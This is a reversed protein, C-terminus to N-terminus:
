GHIVGLYTLYGAEMGPWHPAGLLAAAGNLNVSYRMSDAEGAANCTTEIYQDASFGDHLDPTWLPWLGGTLSNVHATRTAGFGASNVLYVDYSGTPPLTENVGAPLRPEPIAYLMADINDGGSVWPGSDAIDACPNSNDYVPSDPNATRYENPGYGNVDALRLPKWGEFGGPGYVPTYQGYYGPFNRLYYCSYPDALYKYAYSISHSGGQHTRLIAYYYAERDYFPVAVGTGLGPTSITTIETTQRFRKLRTAHGRAPNLIDDNAVISSYGMDIGTIKMDTTTAALEARDDLDNTYFMPPVLLQGGDVHQAWQGIYMCGEFNDTSTGPKGARNDRFFKVWKLENGQFFVHMTTDCRAPMPATKEAPKMSHAVLLNLSPEPFRIITGNEIRANPPYWLTGESVKTLTAFAQAMPDLALADVYEFAEQARRDLAASAWRMQFESLRDVKWLAAALAAAEVKLKAFARKLMKAGDRPDAPVSHGIQLSLMYHVGRQVDDAGFRWATNHAEDGRANFAWGLQSSYSTHDYFPALDDHHLLRVVRGARIWADLADGTPLTAGTPFGGFADLVALAEADGGDEMRRRFAATMTRPNLPLPMALVGQTISVEVLWARGDAAYTIGHTRSFRWDYRIQVGDKLVQKDYASLVPPKAPRKASVTVRYRSVSKGHKQQPKAFGMLVQVLSRMTGSYMTPKLRTYQSFVRPSSESPNDLEGALEAFPKVALRVMKQYDDPLKFWQACSVTPHFSALEQYAPYPPDEPVTEIFGNQVVGSLFDPIEVPTLTASVPTSAEYDAFIHVANMGAAILVHGYARGDFRMQASLQELGGVRMREQTRRLLAIAQPVYAQCQQVDGSLALRLVGDGADSYRVRSDAAERM